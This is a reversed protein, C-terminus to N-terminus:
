ERGFRGTKGALQHVAEGGFAVQRNLKHLIDRVALFPYLLLPPEGLLFYGMM